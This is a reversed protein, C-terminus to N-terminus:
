GIFKQFSPILLVILSPVRNSAHLGSYNSLVFSEAVRFYSGGELYTGLSSVPVSGSIGYPAFSELSFVNVVKATKSGGIFIKEVFNLHATGM